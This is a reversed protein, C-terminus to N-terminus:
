LCHDLDLLLRISQCVNEDALWQPPDMTENELGIDQWIEDDVDLQCIGDCSIPLPLIANAPAKCQRILVHFQDCLTNYTSVIKLIM